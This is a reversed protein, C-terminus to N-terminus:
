QVLSLKELGANDVAALVTAVQQYDAARDAEVEIAPQRATEIRGGVLSAAAAADLRERLEAVTVPTGNWALTGAADVHVRLPEPPVTRPPDASAQLGVGLTNTLAPMTIMFIILMVLMVDVLPTVNMEAMPSSARIAFAM